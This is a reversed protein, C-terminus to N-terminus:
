SAAVPETSVVQCQVGWGATATYLVDALESFSAYQRETLAQLAGQYCGPIEPRFRIEAVGERTSFEMAKMMLRVDYASAIGRM